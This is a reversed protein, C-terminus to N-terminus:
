GVEIEEILLSGVFKNGFGGHQKIDFFHFLNVEGVFKSYLDILPEEVGLVHISHFFISSADFFFDFFKDDFSGVDAM